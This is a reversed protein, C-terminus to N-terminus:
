VGSLRPSSGGQFRHRRQRSEFGRSEARCAPVGAESNCRRIGPVGPLIRVRSRVPRSRASQQRQAVPTNTEGAPDSGATEDDRVVRAPRQAVAFITSVIPSLGMHNAQLAFARDSSSCGRANGAPSSGADASQLDAIRVRLRRSCQPLCRAEFGRRPAPSAASKGNLWAQGPRAVDRIKL